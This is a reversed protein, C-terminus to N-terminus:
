INYYCITRKSRSVICFTKRCHTLILKRQHNSLTV